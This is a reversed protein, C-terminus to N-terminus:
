AAEEKVVWVKLEANVDRHLKIEVTYVGLTRIHEELHVHGKEVEISEKKLFEVIDSAAVSGYVEDGEKVKMTFTATLAAIKGAIVKAGSAKDAERRTITDRMQEVMKRNGPTAPVGIGQPILFNRAFGDKVKVVDMASGVKGYDKVLVLEM